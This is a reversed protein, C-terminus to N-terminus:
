TNAPAGRECVTVSSHVNLSGQCHASTLGAAGQAACNANPKKPTMSVEVTSPIAVIANNRGLDQHM